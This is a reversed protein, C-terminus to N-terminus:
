SINAVVAWAVIVADTPVATGFSLNITDASSYVTPNALDAGTVGLVSIDVASAYTVTGDTLTVTGATDDPTEKSTVNVGASLVVSGAPIQLVELTDSTTLAAAGASDRADVIDAFDLEVKIVGVKDTGSAPYASASGKNFGLSDDYDTM